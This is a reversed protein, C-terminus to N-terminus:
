AGGGKSRIASRIEDVSLSGSSLSGGTSTDIGAKEARQELAARDLGDLDDAPANDDGPVPPNQPNEAADKEEDSGPETDPDGDAGGGIKRLADRIEEDGDSDDPPADIIGAATALNVLVDHTMGAFVDSGDAEEEEMNEAHSEVAEKSGIGHGLQDSRAIKELEERLEVPDATARGHLVREEKELYEAREKGIKANLERVEEPTPFPENPGHFVTTAQPVVGKTTLWRDKDTHYWTVDGKTFTETVTEDRYLPLWDPIGAVFAGEPYVIEKSKSGLDSNEDVGEFGDHAELDLPETMPVEAVSEDALLNTRTNAATPAM